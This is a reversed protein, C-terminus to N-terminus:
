REQKGSQLIPINEMMCVCLWNGVVVSGHSQDGVKQEEDSKSQKEDEIVIAKGYGILKM